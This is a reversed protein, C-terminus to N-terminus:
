ESGNGQAVAFEIAKALEPIPAIAVTDTAMPVGAQATRRQPEHLADLAEAASVEIPDVEGGPREFGVVESGKGLDCGSRLCVSPGGFALRDGALALAALAARALSM